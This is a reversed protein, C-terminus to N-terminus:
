AATKAPEAAKKAQHEAKHAKRYTKAEEKTVGGDKNADAEVLKKWRTGAEAETIKGDHDADVDEFHHKHPTSGPAAAAKKGKAFSLGSLSLSTALLVSFFSSPKM